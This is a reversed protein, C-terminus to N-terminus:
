THATEGSEETVLSKNFEGHLNWYLAILTNNRRKIMDTNAGNPNKDLAKNLAKQCAAQEKALASLVLATEYGDMELNIFKM